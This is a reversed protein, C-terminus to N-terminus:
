AATRLWRLVTSHSVGVAVSAARASSGAAVMSLAQTIQEDSCRPVSEGANARARREAIQRRAAVAGPHASQVWARVAHYHAGVAAAAAAVTSGAAIMALARTVQEDSYLRRLDGHPARARREAVSQHQQWRERLEERLEVLRAPDTGAPAAVRAVAGGREDDDRVADTLIRRKRARATRRSVNVRWRVRVRAIGAFSRRGDTARCAEFLGILAAQRADELELVDGARWRASALLPRYRRVLEAFAAGDGHAARRALFEDRVADLSM